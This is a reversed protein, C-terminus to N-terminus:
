TTKSVEMSYMAMYSKPSGLIRLSVIFPVLSVITLLIYHALHEEFSPNLSLALNVSANVVWHFLVAPWISRGSVAFVAYSFGIMTIYLVQFFVVPFPRVLLNFLHLSGWFLGSVAASLIIGRRDRGWSKLMATLLVGRYMTEELLSTALAFTIIGVTIFPPPFPFTFTGSFVRISLISKYLILPLVVIWIWTAGLRLFGAKRLWGFRWLLWVFFATMVIKALSESLENGEPYPYLQTIPWTLTSLLTYLLFLVFGFGIPHRTAFSEFKKM